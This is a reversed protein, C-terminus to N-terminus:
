LWAACRARTRSRAECASACFWVTRRPHEAIDAAKVVSARRCAAILWKPAPPGDGRLPWADDSEAGSWASFHRGRCSEFM